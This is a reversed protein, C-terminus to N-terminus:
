IGEYSTGGLYERVFSKMMERARFLRSKVTGVSIGGNKAITDLSLGQLNALISSKYPEPLQELSAKIAEQREQEILVLDISKEQAALDHVEEIPVQQKRRKARLETICRNRAALFLWASFPTGRNEDFTNLTKYINLFVEQGIDEATEKDGILRFIFALLRRHYKEVLFSFADVNGDKIQRIIVLDEM